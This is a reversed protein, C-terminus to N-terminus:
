FLLDEFEKQATTAEEYTIKESHETKSTVLNKRKARQTLANFSVKQELSPIIYNTYTKNMSRVIFDALPNPDALMNPRVLQQYEEKQGSDIITPAHGKLMLAFNMHLRSYMLGLEKDFHHGQAFENHIIAANLFDDAVTKKLTDILLNQAKEIHVYEERDLFYNKGDPYYRGNEGPFNGSLGQNFISVFTKALCGIGVLIYDDANTKNFLDLGSGYSRLTEQYEKCYSLINNHNIVKMQDTFLKGDLSKNENILCVVEELNLPFRGTLNLSHFTILSYLHKQLDELAFKVQGTEVILAQMRERYSEALVVNRKYLPKLYVQGLNQHLRRRFLLGNTKAYM